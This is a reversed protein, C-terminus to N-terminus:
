RLPALEDSRPLPVRAYRLGQGRFPLYTRADWCPLRPQHLPPHIDGRCPDLALELPMGMEHAMFEGLKAPPPPSRPNLAANADKAEDESAWPLPSFRLPQPVLEGAAVGLTGTGVLGAGSRWM